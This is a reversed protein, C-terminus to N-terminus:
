IELIIFDHYSELEMRSGKRILKGQVSVIMDKAHANCAEIYDIENLHVKVSKNSKDIRTQIVISRDVTDGKSNKGAKLEIVYGNIKTHKMDTEKYKESIIKLVKFEDSSIFVSKEIDKPEEMNESWKVSTEIDLRCANYEFNLLADCMNANLGDKYLDEYDLSNKNQSIYKLGNQIRKIVKRQPSMSIDDNENLSTQQNIENQVEVNFIYSGVSTQSLKYHELEKNKSNIRSVYPNPNEENVIAASFLKFIGEMVNKGYEIPIKGDESIDSKIRISFLDINSKEYLDYDLIEEVVQKINKEELIALTEIADKLRINFDKFKDSSPINIYLEEGYYIKKFQVLNKNPFNDVKTWRNNLLYTIILNKNIHEIDINKLYNMIFM